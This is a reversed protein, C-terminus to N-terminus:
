CQRITELWQLIINFLMLHFFKDVNGSSKSTQRFFGFSDFLFGIPWIILNMLTPWNYFLYFENIYDKRYILLRWNSFINLFSQMKLLLM